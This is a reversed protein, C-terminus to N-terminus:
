NHNHAFPSGQIHQGNVKIDFKWTGKAPPIAYNVQYLGNGLDSLKVPVEGSPGSGKVEFKEGGRSMDKGSKTRARIVFQFGEIFSTNHDAGERVNINYPSNAVPKKRLGVDIRHNGAHEPAYDVRYTGDGNDTLKHPVEGKPGTIKVEFPDGGERIPNGKKDRAEINFHTPLNDQVGDEVGPGWVRSQSADTGPVVPVKFPSDKIHEWYQPAVPNKLGVTIEHTGVENAQYTVTYTGDRNDKVQAPLDSGDPQTIEVLFPNERPVVTAGNEDRAYITFTAPLATDAEKLGPGDAYCQLADPYGKPKSANVTYPSNAVHKGELNVSVTHKGYHTPVYTVTYSGDKNDVLKADEDNNQPGKITVRYPDGGFKIRQGLRDHSEIYFTAPEGQVAREIGPGHVKTKTVDVAARDVPVNWPSGQIPKTKLHVSITHKGPHTAVYTVGYTGNQNDVVQPTVSPSAGQIKVEFNEGGCVIKNGAANVAQITFEAPIGTEAHELGPGYAYCKEPIATRAALDAARRKGENAEYDRFYSIYTMTSLEDLAAVMDEPSLIKPIGMETEAADEGKTANDLPNKGVLNALPEPFAGPKLAEVLHCIARGDSWSNSFDRVDCEPIKKRVWELLDNKASGAGGSIKQIQYRLIITWILGLILKLNSDTIDEPGIAVLKIGENKLFQLSAGTNELKQARIKPKKNYNPISKSSIIELLNILLLGDSLDYQLDEIKMMRELLFQNAWRTFTRKQIDIWRTDQPPKYDSEAM